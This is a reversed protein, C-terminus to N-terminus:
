YRYRINNFLFFWYANDEFAIQIPETGKGYIIGPVMGKNLLSYTSGTAKSREIVKYKEM